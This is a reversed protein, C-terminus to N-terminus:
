IDQIINRAYSSFYWANKVKQVPPLILCIYWPKPKNLLAANCYCFFVFLGFTTHYKSKVPNGSPKESM